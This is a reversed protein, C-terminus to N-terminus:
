EAIKRTAIKDAFFRTAVVIDDEGFIASVVGVIDVGTKLVEDINDRVIGGMTSVPIDVAEVASALPATGIGVALPKTPTEFIPGVNVYSAGEREAKQAEEPSHASAGIIMKDGLSKRATEIPMDSQGLHVGDAEVAVAIDPWDNVIFLMDREKTLQRYLIALDYFDKANLTKDRLQLIKAGGKFLEDVVQTDSREGYLHRGTVPYIDVDELNRM